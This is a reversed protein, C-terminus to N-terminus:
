GTGLFRQRLQMFQARQEPPLSQLQEPTLAIIAMVANRQEPPLTALLASTANQAPAPAPPTPTAVAPAPALASMPTPRMPREVVPQQQQQIVSAARQANRMAAPATPAGRLAPPASHSTSPVPAPPPANTGPGATALIRGTVEMDLLGLDAMVKVLGYCMDPVSTIIMRAQVLTDPSNALTKLQPLLDLYDSVHKDEAM